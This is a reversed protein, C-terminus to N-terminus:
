KKKKEKKEKPPAILNYITFIIPAGILVGLGLPSLLYANVFGGDNGGSALYRAAIFAIAFALGGVIGKIIAVPKSDKM